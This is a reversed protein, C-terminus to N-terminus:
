SVYSEFVDSQNCASSEHDFSQAQVSMAMAPNIAQNFSKTVNDNYEVDRKPKADSIKSNRNLKRHFFKPTKKKENRSRLYFHNKQQCCNFISLFPPM